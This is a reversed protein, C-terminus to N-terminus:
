CHKEKSVFEAASNKVLFFGGVDSEFTKLKSSFCHQECIIFKLVEKAIDVWVVNM